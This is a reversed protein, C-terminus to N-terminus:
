WRDLRAAGGRWCEMLPSLQGRGSPARGWLLLAGPAQGLEPEWSGPQLRACGMGSGRLGGAQAPSWPLESLGLRQAGRGLTEPPQSKQPVNETENAHPENFIFM